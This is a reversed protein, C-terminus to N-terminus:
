LSIIFVLDNSINTNILRKKKQQTNIVGIINAIFTHKNDNQKIENKIM